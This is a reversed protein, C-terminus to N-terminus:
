WLFFLQNLNNGVCILQSPQTGRLAPSHSFTLTLPFHSCMQSIHRPTQWMKQQVIFRRRLHEAQHQWEAHGWSDTTGATNTDCMYDPFMCAHETPADQRFQTGSQHSERGQWTVNWGDANTMHGWHERGGRDNKSKVPHPTHGHM